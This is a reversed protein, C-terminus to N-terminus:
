EDDVEVDQKVKQGGPKKTVEAKAPQAAEAAKAKKSKKKKTAAAAAEADKKKKLMVFALLGGLLALLLGGLLIWILPSSKKPAPAPAPTEAAPEVKPPVVAAPKPEEKKPEVKPEEKKPPPEEVKPSPPPPEVKPEPKPEVKAILEGTNVVLKKSLDPTLNARRLFLLALCTNAQPTEGPYGGEEWSGNALQNSILIEAGWKYWDKNGLKQIDYLVAIREMAWMFYLGGSEKLTPRGTTDGVPEGVARGLSTFAKIIVQDAEPKVDPPSVVHGIAVALLAICTFQHGGDAGTRNFDYAWTGSPGQSTRFRRAVLAFTRDVPIDYKRAAWLGVMAFHTNSNDTTADYLDHRKNAPDANLRGTTDDWVALRRMTDPVTQKLKSVDVSAGDPGSLKRMAAVLQTVHQEPYKHTKYGWGGSPMQASILRGALLQIVRKDIKDKMRDLFLIALALEYTDDLDGATLRVLAAARKLGPDTTPVGCEILTMGVLSTYGSRFTKDADAGTGTGWFGSNRQQRKLFTVGMDISRNITAEDAPQAAGAPAPWLLVLPAVAALLAARGTLRALM